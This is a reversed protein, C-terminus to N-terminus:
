MNLYRMLEDYRDRLENDFQAAQFKSLVTYNFRELSQLIPNLDPSDIKIHMEINGETAPLVTLSLIKANNEEIIRAIQQISHDRELMQLVIIGGDRHVGLMEALHDLLDASTISGLYNNGEDVVPVVTIDNESVVKLVDLVHTEPLVSVKLLDLEAQVEGQYVEANLFDSENALGVFMGNEVVPLDNVRLEDMLNLVHMASEGRNLVPLSKSILSLAKNM